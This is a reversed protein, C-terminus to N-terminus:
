IGVISRSNSRQRNAERQSRAGAFVSQTSRWQSLHPSHSYTELFPFLTDWSVSWNDTCQPHKKRFAAMHGCKRKRRSRHDSWGCPRLIRAINMLPTYLRTNSYCPHIQSIFRDRPTALYLSTSALLVISVSYYKKSVLIYFIYEQLIMRPAM